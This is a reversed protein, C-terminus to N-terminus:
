SFEVSLGNRKPRNKGDMDGRERGGREVGWLFPKQDSAPLFM